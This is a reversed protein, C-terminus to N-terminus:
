LVRRINTSNIHPTANSGPSQAHTCLTGCPAGATEARPESKHRGPASSNHQTYLYVQSPAARINQALDLDVMMRSPPPAGRANRAFADM